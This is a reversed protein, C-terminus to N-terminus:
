YETKSEELSQVENLVPPQQVHPATGVRINEDLKKYLLSWNQKLRNTGSCKILHILFIMIVYINM